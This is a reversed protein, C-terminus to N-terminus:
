IREAITVRRIISFVLCSWFGDMSAQSIATFGMEICLEMTVKFILDLDGFEKEAIFVRRTISFVLCSWFGAMREQSIANLGM